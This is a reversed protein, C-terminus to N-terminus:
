FLLFPVDVLNSVCRVELGYKEEMDIVYEDLTKYKDALFVAWLCLEGRAQLKATSFALNRAGGHTDLLCCLVPAVM